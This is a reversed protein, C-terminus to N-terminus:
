LKIKMLMEFVIYIFIMLVSGLIGNVICNKKSFRGGQGRYSFLLLLTYVTGWVYFLGVKQWLYVFAFTAALTIGVLMPNSIKFPVKENKVGLTKALIILCFIALAIGVIKPFEYPGVFVMKYAPATYSKYLYYCDAGLLGAIVIVDMKKETMSLGGM